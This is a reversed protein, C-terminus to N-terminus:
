SIIMSVVADINPDGSVTEEKRAEPNYGSMEGEFYYLTGDKQLLRAINKVIIIANMELAMCPLDNSDLRLETV